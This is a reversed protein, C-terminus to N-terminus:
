SGAPPRLPRDLQLNGYEGKVEALMTAATTNGIQSAISAPAASLAQEPRLGESLKPPMSKCGAIGEQQSRTPTSRALLKM